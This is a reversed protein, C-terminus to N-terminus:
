GKAVKRIMAYAQFLARSQCDIWTENKNPDREGSKTRKIESPTCLRLCIEENYILACGGNSYENWNTAGNLFLKEDFESGSLVYDEGKEEIVSELLELAYIKVGKKWYSVAKKEEIAKKVEQITKM